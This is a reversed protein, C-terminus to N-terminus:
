YINEVMVRGSDAMIRERIITEMIGLIGHTTTPRRERKRLRHQVTHVPLIICETRDDVGWFVKARGKLCPPIWIDVVMVRGFDM